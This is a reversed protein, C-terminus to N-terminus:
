KLNFEASAKKGDASYGSFSVHYLGKESCPYAEFLDIETSESAGAAFEIYSGDGKQPAARSKLIGEYRIKTGSEMHTVELFENQFGEFPTHWKLFINEKPLLNTVTFDMMLPEGRTFEPKAMKIDFSFVPINFQVSCNENRVPVYDGAGLSELSLCIWTSFSYTNPHGAAALTGAANVSAYGEATNVYSPSLDTVTLGELKYGPKYNDPLEKRDYIYDAMSLRNDLIYATGDDPSTM